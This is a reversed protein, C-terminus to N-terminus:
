NKVFKNKRLIEGLELGLLHAVCGREWVRRGVVWNFKKKM